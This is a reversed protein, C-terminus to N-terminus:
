SSSQEEALLKQVDALTSGADPVIGDSPQIDDDPLREGQHVVDILAALDRRFAEEDGAEVHSILVDDLKLFEPCLEEPLDYQGDGLIRVIM